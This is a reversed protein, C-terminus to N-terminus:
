QLFKKYNGQYLFYTQFFNLLAFGGLLGQELFSHCAPIQM